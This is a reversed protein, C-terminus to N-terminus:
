YITDNSLQDYMNHMFYLCKFLNFKHFQLKFYKYVNIQSLFYLIEAPYHNM